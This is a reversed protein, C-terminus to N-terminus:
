IKDIWFKTRTKPVVFYRCNENGHWFCGHVFITTRLKPLVIDPLGSLKKDLLKYRFGNSFLCKRVLLESKTNKGKIRSMNYSRTQNDHVHSMSRIYIFHKSIVSKQRGSSNAQTLLPLCIHAIHTPM